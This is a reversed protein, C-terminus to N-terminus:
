ARRSLNGGPGRCDDPPSRRRQETTDGGQLLMGPTSRTDAQKRHKAEVKEKSRKDLYTDAEFNGSRHYRGEAVIAAPNKYRGAVQYVNQGVGENEQRSYAEPKGSRHDGGGGCYDSWIRGRNAERARVKYIFGRKLM